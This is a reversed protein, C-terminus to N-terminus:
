YLLLTLMSDTIFRTAPLSVNAVAKKVQAIYLARFRDMNEVVTARCYTCETAKTIARNYFALEWLTSECPRALLEKGSSVLYEHFWPAVKVNGFDAQVVIVGTGSRCSCDRWMQLYRSPLVLWSLSRGVAQAAIGCKYHYELLRHHDLATIDRMGNFVNSPRGLDKIELARTAATQAHHQWRFQCSLAYLELFHDPLFQAMVLDGARSLAAQMDYKRAAEMVAKADDWSGFTPTAAPYCLLLLSELTTSSSSVDSQAESQPLTFMDKFVPSMLSLILKFVHFDVGNTSRLIIDCDRNDFPARATRIIEETGTDAMIPFSLLTVYTACLWEAITCYGVNTAVAKKVQAIYLARFRDMSEVVTIRCVSCEAAKTIARSYAALEWVTSECPREWLEKGSSTLYQLMRLGTSTRCPCEKSAHSWMPMNKSSNLPELWSLSNGVAQAVIGCTHHYMLLRHHDLATIDRMSEFETSPRGLNKIELARTAATQAHHQWGFRCSLAYLELFHNPLFQTMVLDAARSLVAQMDYKRAAELVAKANDLSDFTPTAAPYCLLLLSELTTSSEVVPIVPISSVGSQLGNQPLTFMDKFIPSVLSLIVKFLYFDVRDTTSRLIIDGDPNDFPANATTTPEEAISM